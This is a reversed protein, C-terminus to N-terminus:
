TSVLLDVVKGPPVLLGTVRIPKSFRTGAIDLRKELACAPRRPLHQPSNTFSYFQLDRRAIGFRGTSTGFDSWPVPLSAHCTGPPSQVLSFNCLLTECHWADRRRALDRGAIGLRKMRKELACAPRRPLHRTSITFTFFQLIADRLALVARRCALIAGRSALIADRSALIADRSALFARAPPFCLLCTCVLGPRRRKELWLAPLCGKWTPEQKNTLQAM